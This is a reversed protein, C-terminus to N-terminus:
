WSIGKYNARLKATGIEYRVLDIISTDRDLQMLVERFGRHTGGIGLHDGPCDRDGDPGRSFIYGVVPRATNPLDNRFWLSVSYTLPLTDLQSKIRGGRFVACFNRVSAVKDSRALV